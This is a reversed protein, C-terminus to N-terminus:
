ARGRRRAQSKTYSRVAHTRDREVDDPRQRTLHPSAPQPYLTARSKLAAQQPACSGQRLRNPGRKRRSMAWDGLGAGENRSTPYDGEEPRPTACGPLAGAKPAPPRQNSDLRGSWKRSPAVLKCSPPAGVKAEAPRGGFLPSDGLGEVWRTHVDADAGFESVIADDFRDVIAKRTVKAPDFTFGIAAQAEEAAEAVRDVRRGKADGAFAPDRGLGESTGQTGVVPGVAFDARRRPPQFV